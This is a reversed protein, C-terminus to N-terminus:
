TRKKIAKNFLAGSSGPLSVKTRRVTAPFTQNLEALEMRLKEERDFV